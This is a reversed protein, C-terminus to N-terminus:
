FPMRVMLVKLKLDNSDSVQLHNKWADTFRTPLQGLADLIDNSVLDDMVKFVDAQPSEFVYRNKDVSSKIHEHAPPIESINKTQLRAPGCFRLPLIDRWTKETLM